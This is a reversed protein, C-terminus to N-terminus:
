LSKKWDSRPMGEKQLVARKLSDVSGFGCSEALVAYSLGPDKAIIKKLEDVRYNNTFTCFNQNFESNIISSIYSRNTGIEKAVDQINLRSNLYVKKHHYLYLVKHLLKKQTDITFNEIQNTNEPEPILEFTPNLTKQRIGFWGTLFLMTSFIVSAIFLYTNQNKFFDRGLIELVLASISTFFMLHNLLLVKFTGSDELNSYYQEAKRGYKMILKYIAITTIIVQVIFTIRIIVYIVKLYQIGIYDSNFSRDFLWTIDDKAPTFLIGLGYLCTLITPIALYRSHIKFSFKEDVTLLRFYIYYMPYVMLSAYQYFPDIYPYLSPLPAFYIFHSIYILAAFLMFKGLFLQPVKNKGRYNNLAISWFLTVYVPNLLLIYRLM